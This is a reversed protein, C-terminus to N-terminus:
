FHKMTKYKLSMEQKWKTKLAKIGRLMGLEKNLPAESFTGSLLPSLNASQGWFISVRQLEPMRSLEYTFCHLATHSIRSHLYAHIYRHIHKGEMHTLWTHKPMCLDIYMTYKNVPMYTNVHTHVRIGFLGLVYYLHLGVFKYTYM